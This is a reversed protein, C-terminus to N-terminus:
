DFNQIKTKVVSFCESSFIEQKIRDMPNKGRKPRVLLYFKRVDPISNLLKVLLVKGVFGTTGTLLVAKNKFAEKIM